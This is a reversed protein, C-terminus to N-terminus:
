SGKIVKVKLRLQRRQTLLCQGIIRDRDDDNIEEFYYAVVYRNKEVESVRVPSALLSIPNTQEDPLSFQLKILKDAPPKENFIALLGCGSIDITTGSLIWHEEPAGVGEPTRSSILVPLTYDIRFYERMQEHNVTKRAIMELVQGNVIRQIMAELSVSRGAMDLNIICPLKTDIAHAPLTGSKFLLNFRPPTTKQFVCQERHRKDTDQLPLFIKVPKADPIDKIFDPPTTM